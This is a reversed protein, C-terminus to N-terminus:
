ANFEIVKEAMVRQKIGNLFTNLLLKKDIQPNEKVCLIIIRVAMSELVVLVSPDPGDSVEFLM